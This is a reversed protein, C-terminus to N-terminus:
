ERIGFEQFCEDQPHGNKSGCRVVCREFIHIQDLYSAPDPESM